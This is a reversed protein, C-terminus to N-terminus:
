LLLNLCMVEEVRETQNTLIQKKMYLFTILFTLLRDHDKSNQIQSANETLAWCNLLYVTRDSCVSQIGCFNRLNM